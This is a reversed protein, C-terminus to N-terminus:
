EVVDGSPSVLVSARRAKLFIFMEHSLFVFVSVIVITIGGAIVRCKVLQFGGIFRREASVKLFM